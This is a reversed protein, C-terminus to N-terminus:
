IEECAKLMAALPEPDALRHDNGVEILTGWQDEGVRRLRHVPDRRRRHQEYGIKRWEVGAEDEVGKPLLGDPVVNFVFLGNFLFAVENRTGICGCPATM